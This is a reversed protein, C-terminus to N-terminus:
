RDWRRNVKTVWLSHHKGLDPGQVPVDDAPLAQLCDQDAAAPGAGFQSLYGYRHYNINNRVYKCLMRTDAASGSCLCYTREHIFELKDAARDTVYSGQNFHTIRLDNPHGGRDACRRQLRNFNYIDSNIYM